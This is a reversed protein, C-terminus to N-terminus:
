QFCLKAIACKYVDYMRRLNAMSCHEDKEHISGDQGPFIPGFAVARPFARAYTGGGIGIPKAKLGTVEEYASLLSLVLEDQPSVFLPDHYFGATVVYGALKRTLISTVMDRSVDIPTRIDLSLHLMGGQTNAKGVNLTTKGTYSDSRSLSVGSADIPSFRARIDDYLPLPTLGYSTANALFDIAKIFASDGKHPTSGHASKGCFTLTNGHRTANSPISTLSAATSDSLTIAIRDMVMNARDGGSISIIDQPLPIAVDYYYIGKEAHIVPFDGDPTFAMSPVEERNAAYASMCEWGSEEDCGYILRIRCSPLRGEAMLEATAFLCALIPAKDDLVGRGYLTDNDIVAGHPPFSWDNGVPVTDLHGLMAFLEEGSGIDAIGYYGGGNRTTFGLKSSLRLTYDLASQVGAGFPANPLAEGEVSDIMILERSASIFDDFYSM